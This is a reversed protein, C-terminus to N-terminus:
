SGYGSPATPVLLMDVGSEELSIKEYESCSILLDYCIKESVSRWFLYRSAM